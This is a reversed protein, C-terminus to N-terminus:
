TYQTHGVRAIPVPVLCKRIGFRFPMGHLTSQTPPDQEYPGCEGHNRSSSCEGDFVAHRVEGGRAFEVESSRPTSRRWRWSRSAGLARNRVLSVDHAALDQGFHQGGVVRCASMAAERATVEGCCVSSDALVLGDPVAPANFVARFRSRRVGDTLTCWIWIWM